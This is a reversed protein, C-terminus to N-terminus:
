KKRGNFHELFKGIRRIGERLRHEDELFVLMAYFPPKSPCHFGTGNVILVGTERLLQLCFQFDSEIRYVKPDFKMLIYFAGQPVVFSVGPIKQLEEMAVARRLYLQGEPPSVLDKISQHGGLCTQIASQGLMNACLHISALTNLNDIVGRAYRKDSGSIILWGGKFGPARYNKAIGGMTFILLDEALSAISIHEAGDYLLKSYIEDFIMPLEHRRCIEVGKQLLDRPYVAGTPNNPSIFLPFATKPTIKKELDRLDPLYGNREDCRYAVVKGGFAQIIANWAPYCPRPMLVEMGPRLFAWMLLIFAGTVGDTLYIDDISVNKIGANQAEQLIAERASFIGKFDASYPACGWINKVVNLMVEEPPRVGFEPPNGLNFFFVDHGSDQMALAEKLLPGRPAYSTKKVTNSGTHLRHKM